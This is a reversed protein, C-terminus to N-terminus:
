DKVINILESAIYEVDNKSIDPHLPLSLLEPFVAETVPLAEQNKHNFFSLWHNPQYHYGIQIGRKLMNQQIQNRNKM